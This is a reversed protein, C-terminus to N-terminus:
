PYLQVKAPVLISISSSCLVFWIACVKYNIAHYLYIQDQLFHWNRTHYLLNKFSYQPTALHYPMPSQIGCGYTRDRGGWGFDFIRKSPKEM